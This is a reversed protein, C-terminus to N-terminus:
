AWPPHFPVHRKLRQIHRARWRGRQEISGTVAALVVLALLLAGLPGLGLAKAVGYSAVMAASPIMPWGFADGYDLRLGDKLAFAITLGTALV